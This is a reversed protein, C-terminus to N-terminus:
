PRSARTVALRDLAVLRNRESRDRQEKTPRSKVIGHAPKPKQANPGAKLGPQEAATADTDCAALASASAETADTAAAFPEEARRPAGLDQPAPQSRNRGGLWSCYWASDPTVGAEHARSCAAVWEYDLSIDPEPPPNDDDDWFLQNSLWEDGQSM